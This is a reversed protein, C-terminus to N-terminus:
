ISNNCLNRQADSGAFHYGNAYLHEGLKTNLGWEKLLEVADNVISSDKLIGATAVIMVTDGKQLYTPQMLPSNIYKPRQSQSFGLTMNFMMIVILLRNYLNSKVM